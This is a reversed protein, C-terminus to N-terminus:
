HLDAAAQGFKDLSSPDKAFFEEAFYLILRDAVGEYKEGLADALGDWTAEVTFHELMEDTIVAAMGMLDGAKLKDNLASSTGEFGLMDFLFSYNKTSGYFGLQFRARDRWPAREEDTDGVVTFVPVSLTLDDVSRGAGEAGDRLGPLLREDLYQRSHFPHVHVGDAVAGAMRVMWPGVAAVDVPPDAAEIAGPSWMAPLLSLEHYEGDFALPEDGRFAPFIAKVAQIYERMRPGPPDFEVGYRREIHARVQTGLGLRFKGDTLDQLEWAVKATVMPSRPFAVAIGTSYELSPAALAAAAVSLYATRGSEVFVMGDLGAAEVARAYDQVDPLKRGAAMVHLEM